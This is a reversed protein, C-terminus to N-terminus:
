FSKSFKAFVTVVDNDKFPLSGSTATTVTDGLWRKQVGLSTTFGDKATLKVGVAIGKEGDQPSFPSSPKGTSPQYNLILSGSISDSFKRGIGLKYDTTDDFTSLQTAGLFFVQADSWRTRRISGFLLTDKAIGSQLELTLMKPTGATTNGISTEGALPHIFTTDLDFELDSEYTLSARLAIKPISYAGGVIYGTDSDEKFSTAGPVTPNLARLDASGKAKQYKIGGFASIRDTAKYHGLAIYSKSSISGELTSGIPQYNVDVGIPQTNVMLGLGFKDNIQHKYAFRLTDVDEAINATPAFSTSVSPEARALTLEVFNGKEFLFSPSFVLRDLGTVGLATSSVLVASIATVIKITTKM